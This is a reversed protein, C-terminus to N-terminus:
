KKGLRAKLHMIEEEPELPQRWPPKGHETVFGEFWSERRLKVKCARWLALGAATVSLFAALELWNRLDVFTM